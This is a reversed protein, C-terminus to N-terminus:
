NYKYTNGEFTLTIVAKHILGKVDEFGYRIGSFEKLFSQPNLWFDKLIVGLVTNNLPKGDIDREEVIKELILGANNTDPDDNSNAMDRTRIVINVVFNDDANATDMIIPQTSEPLISICPFDRDSMPLIGHATIRKVGRSLELPTLATKLLNIVNIM